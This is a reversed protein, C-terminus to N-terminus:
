QKAALVKATAAATSALKSATDNMAISKDMSGKSSGFFYSIVTTYNGALYGLLMNITDRMGTDMAIPKFIVMVLAGFFSLTVIWGLAYFTFNTGKAKAIEMERQRASQVDSLYAKTEEHEQKEEELAIEAMKQQHDMEAMRLKLGSVPDAAIASDLQQPTMTAASIGFLSAVMQLAKGAAGGVAAGVPGGSITGILAGVGPAEASIKGAIDKWDM